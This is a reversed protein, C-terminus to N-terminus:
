RLVVLNIDSSDVEDYSGGVDKWLEFRISGVLRSTIEYQHGREFLSFTVLAAYNVDEMATTFNVTYDGVGHDTISSVNGSARIAVTGVGNFNVWARCAYLPASGAANLVDAIATRTYATTAIQTTDTAAAATPAAPTGTFTPSALAAAGLTVRQAAADADDLLALGAATFAGVDVGNVTTGTITGGTIAVAGAGQTAITGLGLATRGQASTLDVPVGTGAGAARGKITAEAMDALKANTIAEDALKATTVQGDTILAEATGTATITPNGSVGDSNTISIGTGATLTRSAWGGSTIRTLLGNSGPEVIARVMGGTLDEPNGTGAGSARGKVTAEAMNGLKANTVADNAIKVTTVADDPLKVTTVADNAIKATTVAGDNLKITTVAADSIRATTINGELSNPSSTSGEWTGTIISDRLQQQILTLIDIQRELAEPSFGSVNNLDLGEQLIPINQEIQVQAGSTLASLPSIPYTITGGSFGNLTDGSAPLVTWLDSAVAVWAASSSARTYLRLHATSFFRFTFSWARVTGDAIRTVGRAETHITM